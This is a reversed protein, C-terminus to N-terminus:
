APAKIEWIKQVYKVLFFTDGEEDESRQEEVYTCPYIQRRLVSGTTDYRIIGKGSVQLCRLLLWLWHRGAPWPDLIQHLRQCSIGGLSISAFSESWLGCSIFIVNSRSSPIANLTTDFIPHACIELSLLDPPCGFLLKLTASYKYRRGVSLKPLRAGFCLHVGTRVMLPFLLFSPMLRRCTTALCLHVESLASVAQRPVLQQHISYKYWMEQAIEMKLFYTVASRIEPQWERFQPRILLTYTMFLLKKTQM